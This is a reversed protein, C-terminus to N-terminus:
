ASERLRGRRLRIREAPAFGGWCGDSETWGAELCPGRVSCGRCISRADDWGGDGLARGTPPFFAAPGLGRCAVDAMWPPRCGEAASSASPPGPEAVNSVDDM